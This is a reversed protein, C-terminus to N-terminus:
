TQLHKVILDAIERAPELQPELKVTAPCSSDQRNVSPSAPDLENIIALLVEQSFARVQGLSWDPEVLTRPEWGPLIIPDAKYVPRSYLPVERFRGKDIRMLTQTRARSRRGRLCDLFDERNMIKLGPTRMGLEGYDCSPILKEQTDIRKGIVFREPTVTLAVPCFSGPNRFFLRLFETGEGQGEIRWCSAPFFDGDGRKIAVELDSEISGRKFVEKLPGTCPGSRAWVLGQTLAAELQRKGLAGKLERREPM